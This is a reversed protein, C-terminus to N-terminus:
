SQYGEAQLKFAEAYEGNMAMLQNHNGEEIIQGHDMVLIRDANRVTSFRHSIIIVTKNKFFDYIRNFIKYESVADISATPEDFIVLPANRYFFRAIAIKQWQGTSPRIGDKFNQSLIQDYQNKFKEVFEKADANEIAEQIRKDDRPLDSKGILVNEALTIHGYTNYEQFLVGINKYWSQPKINTLSQENILIQGKTVGYLKSILRVLTTKGAGNHGVIAVKEGPKIVVSLNEFVFKDAHPYKFSVDKFEIKPGSELKDLVVTGSSYLPQLEMLEMFPEIQKKSEGLRTLSNLFIGMNSAFKDVMSMFFTIQGLSINDQVFDWLIMAYGVYVSVSSLNDAVYSISNWKRYIRLLPSNYKSIFGKFKSLLYNGGGDIILEPLHRINTLYPINNMGFRRMETNREQYQWVAAIFHRDVLVAPVSFILTILLINPYRTFLAIGASTTVILLSFARILRDSFRDIAGSNDRARQQLNQIHPDELTEVGLEILKSYHIEDIKANYNYSSAVSAYNAIYDIVRKFLSYVVFLVVLSIVQSPDKDPSKAISVVQDLVFAFIASYLIPTVGDTIANFIKLLTFGPSIQWSMKLVFWIVRLTPYTKNEEESNLQTNPMTPPSLSAITVGQANERM